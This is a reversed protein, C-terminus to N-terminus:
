NDIVVLDNSQVPLLVSFTSGFGKSSVRITGGLDNVIKQCIPLGLGTGNEKTTYFADFIRDLVYYPIGHGTDQFDVRVVRDKQDYATMVTLIGGNPMAEIANKMLNLFVQKLLESDAVVKPIPSFQFNLEISYLLAQSQIIPTLSNLVEIIDISQLKIHTPKSLLLLESVLGNIREIEALMVETYMKYKEFGANTKDDHMIQLFGKISTLPNRIEHAIGAAIKGVTALKENRQMQNQLSAVNGVDKFLICTAEVMGKSNKIPYSDILVHKCEGNREWNFLYNRFPQASSLIKGILNYEESDRPIFQELKKAGHKWTDPHIQFLECAMQNISLVHQYKDLYLIGMDLDDIIKKVMEVLTDSEFTAMAKSEEGVIYTYTCVQGLEDREELGCLDFVGEQIRLYMPKCVSGSALLAQYKCGSCIRESPILPLPACTGSTELIERVFHPFRESFARNWSQIVGAPDIRFVAMELQELDVMKAGQLHKMNKRGGFRILRIM